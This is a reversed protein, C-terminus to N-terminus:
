TGFMRQNCTQSWSSAFRGTSAKPLPLEQLLAPVTARGTLKGFVRFFSSNLFLFNLCKHFMNSNLFGFSNNQLYYCQQLTSLLVDTM